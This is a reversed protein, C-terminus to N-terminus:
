HTHFGIVDGDVWLDRWLDSACSDVGASELRRLHDCVEGDVARTHCDRAVNNLKDGTLRAPHVHEAVMRQVVDVDGDDPDVKLARLM